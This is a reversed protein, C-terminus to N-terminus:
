TPIIGSSSPFYVIFLSVAICLIVLQLFCYLSYKFVRSQLRLTEETMLLDQELEEAQLKFMASKSESDKVRQIMKSQDRSPFNQEEFLAIHDAALVTWSQAARKMIMYEIEDEIKKKFLSELEIEMDISKELLFSPDTSDKTNSSGATKLIAELEIIKSKKAELTVIAEGLEQELHEVKQTLEVFDAEVSSTGIGGTQEYQSDYDDFLNGKGIEELKRIENELAEQTAQLSVISELFPDLDPRPLSNEGRTNNEEGSMDTDLNDRLIDGVRGNKKYFSSRVEESPQADDSHEGNNNVSKESQKSNSAVRDLRVVAVNSSRLDSEGSSYSNEKEVKIQNERFKRNAEIRSGKAWQSRQQVIHGSGKGGVARARSRDRGFGIAEYRLRPASAATSSKSSQDDSNDSDIGINFGAATVLLSLEPDLTTPAVIVPTDGINMSAVSAVSGEGEGEDDSKYRNDDHSRSPEALPLRRKLIQASDASNTVDKSSERRIRRWKKLGYGKTPKPKPGAVHDAEALPSEMWCLPSEASLRIAIPHGNTKLAGTSSIAAEAPSVIRREEQCRDGSDTEITSGVDPPEGHGLNEM